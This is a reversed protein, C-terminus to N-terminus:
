TSSYVTNAFFGSQWTSGGPHIVWLASTPQLGLQAAAVWIAFAAFGVISCILSRRTFDRIIASESQFRRFYLFTVLWLWPLGMFGAYFYWRVLQESRERTLPKGAFM